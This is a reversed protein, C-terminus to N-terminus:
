NLSFLERIFSGPFAYSVLNTTDELLVNSWAVKQLRLSQGRGCTPPDSSPAAPVSLSLSGSVKGNKPEFSGNAEPSDNFTFKNAANPISGSNSVCYYDAVVDATLSYNVNENGLGAEVWSVTLNGGNDISAKVSNRQFHAGSSQSLATGVMVCGMVFLALVSPTVRRM